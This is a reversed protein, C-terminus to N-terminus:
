AAAQGGKAQRSLDEDSIVKYEQANPQVDNKEDLMM